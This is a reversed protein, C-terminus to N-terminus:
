MCVVGLNGGNVCDYTYIYICIYIYIYTYIYIYIYMHVLIYTYVYIYIVLSVPRSVSEYGPRRWPPHVRQTTGKPHGPTVM